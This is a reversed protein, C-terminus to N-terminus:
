GRGKRQETDKRVLERLYRSTNLNGRNADIQKRDEESFRATISFERTRSGEPPRAM